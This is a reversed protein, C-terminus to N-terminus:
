AAALVAPATAARTLTNAIDRLTQTILEPTVGLLHPWNSLRDVPDDTWDLDSWVRAMHEAIVNLTDMAAPTNEIYSRAAGTAAETPITFLRPLAGTAARYASAPVDLTTGSTDAFNPGGDWLGDREIGTAIDLLHDALTQPSTTPM